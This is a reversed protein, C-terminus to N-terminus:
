REPIQGSVTELTSGDAFTIKQLYGYLSGDKARVGDVTIMQGQAKAIDSKNVGVRRFWAPPSGEFHWTDVGHEGRAEMFISIHPNIWEVKTLTGTVQVKKGMDFVASTSHHAWLSGAVILVAAIRYRM